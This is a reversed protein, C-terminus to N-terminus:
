CELLPSAPLRTEFAGVVEYKALRYSRLLYPWAFCQGLLMALRFIWWWEQGEPKHEWFLEVASFIATKLTLFFTNTLGYRQSIGDATEVSLEYQELIAAQYKESAGDYSAASVAHNWLRDYIHKRESVPKVPVSSLLTPNATARV